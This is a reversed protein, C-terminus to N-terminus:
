VITLYLKQPYVLTNIGYAFRHVPKQESAVILYNNSIGNLSCNHPKAGHPPPSDRHKPSNARAQYTRRHIQFSAKKKLKNNNSNISNNLITEISLGTYQNRGPRLYNIFNNDPGNIYIIYIIVQLNTKFHIILSIYIFAKKARWSNRM